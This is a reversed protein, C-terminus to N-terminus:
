TVTTWLLREESSLISMDQHGQFSTFPVILKSKLAHYNSDVMSIKKSSHEKSVASVVITMQLSHSILCYPHFSQNTIFSHEDEHPQDKQTQKRLIIVQRQLEYAPLHDEFIIQAITWSSNNVGLNYSISYPMLDNSLPIVYLHKHRDALGTMQTLRLSSTLHCAILTIGLCLGFRFESQFKHLSDTLVPM